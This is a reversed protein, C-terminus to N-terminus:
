QEMVEKIKNELGRLVQLHRDRRSAKQFAIMQKGEESEYIEQYHWLKEVKRKEDKLHLKVEQANTIPKTITGQLKEKGHSALAM